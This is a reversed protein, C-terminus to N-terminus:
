RAGALAGRVVEGGGFFLFSFLEDEERREFFVFMVTVLCYYVKYARHM